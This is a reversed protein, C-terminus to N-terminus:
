MQRVWWRELNQDREWDSILQHSSSIMGPHQSLTLDRWKLTVHIKYDDKLCHLVEWKVVKQNPMNVMSKKIAINDLFVWTSIVEVRCPWNLSRESMVNVPCREKYKELFINGRVWHARLLFRKWWIQTEKQM